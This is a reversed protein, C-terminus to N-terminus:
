YLTGTVGSENGPPEDLLEALRRLARHKRVRLAPLAVDLRKAVVESDLGEYYLMSLLKHDDDKLHSLAARVRTRREETIIANLADSGEATAGSSQSEFRSLAHQERNMSRTWHMCINRATQFVFGPLAALNEIRNARLSEVVRRLTEQAVDEAASADGLRRAAFLRLRETFRDALEAETFPASPRPRNEAHSEM